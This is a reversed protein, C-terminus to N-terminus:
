KASSLHPYTKNFEPLSSVIWVLPLMIALFILTVKIGTKYDGFSIGFDKIREKFIFKIILVPFIFYSIFDGIFWYLYEILYVQDNASFYQFFNLRFFKRSTVYFSFTQLIAVALFIYVVKKDLNKIIGFLNKIEDILKFSSNNM